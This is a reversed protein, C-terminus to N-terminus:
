EYFTKTITLIFGSGMGWPRKLDEISNGIKNGNGMSVIGGTSQLSIWGAKEYEKFESITESNLIVGVALEGETPYTDPLSANLSEELLLLLGDKRQKQNQFEKIEQKLVTPKSTSVESFEILKEDQLKAYLTNYNEDNGLYVIERERFELPVIENSLKEFSVLIYKNVSYEIDKIILAYETGVGGKFEHAKEKYGKSLVVIVKKYDTMARHMMKRFDTASHNQSVSRDMEAHFGNQRLFNVFSIVQENHEKSDWSYTVFVENESMNKESSKNIDIGESLLYSLFNEKKSEFWKIFQAVQKKDFDPVLQLDGDEIALDGDKIQLDFEQHELFWDRFYKRISGKDLKLIDASVLLDLFYDAEMMRKEIREEFYEDWGTPDFLTSAFDENKVQKGLISEISSQKNQVLERGKKSILYECQGDLTSNDRGSILQVLGLDEILYELNKYDEKEETRWIQKQNIGMALATPTSSVYINKLFKDILNAQEFAEM